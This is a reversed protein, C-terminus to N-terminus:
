GKAGIAVNVRALLERQTGYTARFARSQERMSPGYTLRMYRKTRDMLPIGQHHWRGLPITALHGGSLKRNGKDVLHHIETHGCPFVHRAIRCAICGLERLKDFRAQDAKSSM